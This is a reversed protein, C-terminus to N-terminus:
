PLLKGRLAKRTQWRVYNELVGEWGEVGVLGKVMSSSVEALDPPPVLFV